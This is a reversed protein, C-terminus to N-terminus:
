LMRFSFKQSKNFIRSFWSAKQLYGQAELGNQHDMDQKILIRERCIRYHDWESEVQPTLQLISSAMKNKAQVDGLSRIWQNLIYKKNRICSVHQLTNM